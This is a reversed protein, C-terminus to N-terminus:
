IHILSLTAIAMLFSEDFIQRNRIGKFAKILIDYGIILYDVLYLALLVWYGAGPFQMDMGGFGQDPLLQLGLLLLTAALIRRLMVKQKKTMGSNKRRGMMLLVAAMVVIVALLGHIILEQM